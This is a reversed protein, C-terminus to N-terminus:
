AAVDPAPEPRAAVARLRFVRVPEKVHRLVHTGADVICAEVGEDLSERLDASVWIEGPCAIGLLRAAINVGCGYIDYEDAVFRAVHASVRLLLQEESPRAENEEASIRLLALGAAAADAARSFELMLGDGTSKLIRGGCSPLIEEKAARVFQQWRRIYGAEDVEMLRVSEVVDLVM